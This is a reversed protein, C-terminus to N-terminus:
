ITGPQRGSAFVEFGCTLGPDTPRRGAAIVDQPGLHNLNVSTTSTWRPPRCTRTASSCRSSRWRCGGSAIPGSPSRTGCGASTGPSDRHGGARDMM